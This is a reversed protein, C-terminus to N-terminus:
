VYNKTDQFITPWYCGQQLFKNTTRKDVFHGGCPEDHCAKLTDYIEEEQVCHRIVHDPGTKFIYGQIWYYIVNNRITNKWERPSLHQPLRGAVLYNTFYIFRPINTSLACMNEDLFDDEISVFENAHHSL